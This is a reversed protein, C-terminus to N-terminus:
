WTVTVPPSSVQATATGLPRVQAAYTQSGSAFKVTATATTGTSVTAVVKNTTTDVIVLSEGTGGIPAGSTATLTVAANPAPSTTSATLTLAVAPWTVTVPTSKLQVVGAITAQYNDAVGDFHDVQATCPTSSCQALTHNTALDVIKIPVGFSGPSFNATATLVVPQGATPQTPSAALSLTMTQWTVSVPASSVKAKGTIVAQYTQVGGATVLV